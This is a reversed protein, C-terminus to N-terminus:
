LCRVRFTVQSQSNIILTYVQVSANTVLTNTPLPEAARSALPEIAISVNTNATHDAARASPQAHSGAGAVGSASSAGTSGRSRDARAELSREVSLVM